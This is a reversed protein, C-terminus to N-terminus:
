NSGEVVEFEKLLCEACIENGNYYYLIVDEEKCFDCKFVEIKYNPCAEYKCPFGCDVCGSEYRRM